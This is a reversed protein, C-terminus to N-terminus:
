FCKSPIFLDFAHVNFLIGSENYIALDVLSNFRSVPNFLSLM